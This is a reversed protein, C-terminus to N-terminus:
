KLINIIDKAKACFNSNIIFVKYVFIDLGSPSFCISQTVSDNEGIFKFRWNAGRTMAM